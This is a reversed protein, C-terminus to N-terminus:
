AKPTTGDVGAQCRSGGLERLSGFYGVLTMYPDAPNLLFALQFPRWRPAEVAAPDRGQIQAFRQRGSAAMVKNAL